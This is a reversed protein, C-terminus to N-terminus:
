STRLAEQIRPLFERQWIELTIPGIHKHVIIGQANVLFTEPAAYVGWDIGVKGEADFATMEYPNGLEQLWQQAKPLEDKWNLGILPVASNKAIEVLVPHEQYCPPCWTGWANLVYMRGKLTASSVNSQPDEVSPLEFTPAPKGILPSPIVSPDEGLQVAFVGVLALFLVIPILYRWM